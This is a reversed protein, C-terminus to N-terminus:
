FSFKQMDPRLQPVYDLTTAYRKLVAALYKGTAKKNFLKLAIKNAEKVINEMEDSHEVAWKVKERLASARPNVKLYHQGDKLLPMYWEYAKQDVYLMVSSKFLTQMTRDAWGGSNGIVLIFMYNEFEDEPVRNEISANSVNFNTDKQLKELIFSRFCHSRPSPEIKYTCVKRGYAGRFFAQPKKKAWDVRPWMEEGVVLQNTWKQGWFTSGNRALIPVPITGGNSLRSVAAMVPVKGAHPAQQLYDDGADSTCLLGDVNPIKELQVARDMLKATDRLRSQFFSKSLRDKPIYVVNDIVQVICCSDKEFASIEDFMTKSVSKNPMTFWAEALGQFSRSKPMPMEHKVLGPTLVWADKLEKMHKAKQAPDEKIPKGRDEAEYFEGDTADVALGAHSFPAVDHSQNTRSSQGLLVTDNGDGHLTIASSHRLVAAALWLPPLLTLAQQHM